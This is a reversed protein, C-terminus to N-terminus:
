NDTEIYASSFDISMATADAGSSNYLVYQPALGVSNRPLDTSVVGGTVNGTLVNRVYYYVNTDNPKCALILEWVTDNAVAFNSGLDVKNASGSNDNYVLSFNADGADFGIGFSDLLTSLAGSTLAHTTLSAATAVGFFGRANATMVAVGFITSFFFGGVGSASGRTAYQNSSTAYLAGSSVAAAGVAAVKRVTGVKTGAAFTNRGTLTTGLPTGTGVALALGHTNVTTGNQNAVNVFGVNRGHLSHQLERIRGVPDMTAPLVIKSGKTRSLLVVNSDAVASPTTVPLEWLTSDQRVSAAGNKNVSSTTHGRFTNGVFSNNDAESATESIGYKAKNSQSAYFTNAQIVNYDATPTTNTTDKLLSIDPYTNDTQQGNDRFTCGTVRNNQAGGIKMGDRQNGDILMGNVNVRTDSVSAGTKIRFGEVTAGYCRGGNVSVDYADGEIVFNSQLNSEGTCDVLRVGNAGTIDFGHRGNAASRCNLMHVKTVTDINFGDRDNDHSYVNVLTFRTGVDKLRVGYGLSGTGNNCNKVEVDIIKVDADGTGGTYIGTHDGNGTQASANGDITIGIIEVNTNASGSLLRVIGTVTNNGQDLLKLITKGPGDGLLTVNAPLALCGQSATGTGNLAYTGAPCYVVGGGATSVLDIVSRIITTDSTSGDAKADYDRVNYWAPASDILRSTTSITLYKAQVHGESLNFMYTNNNPDVGSLDERYGAKAKNTTASKALARNGKIVNYAAGTFVGSDGDDEDLSVQMYTNNTTQSSDVIYNDQVVNYGCGTLNIGNRASGEVHCNTITCFTDIVTTGRRIRIGQEGANFSFCGDLKIHHSDGQVMFNNGTNGDASCGVVQGNFTTAIFNYGYRGNSNSRCGLLKFNLVGDLVFGDRECDHAYCNIAHFRDVVEHPDFGYGRSLNSSGTTGNKGNKCEVNICWIDTDMHVRDDPTVGAFFCIINAWGTQGAKNGDITLDKVYIHQNEIGSQTRVVGALDNNGIDACQIITVGMGDGQLTMNSRLRIGGVSASGGYNIVYRGGPAYIIGGGVADCALIANEFAARNASGDSDGRVAGYDLVNFTRDPTRWGYPELLEDLAAAVASPTSYGGGGGGSSWSTWGTTTRERTYTTGDDTRHLTQHGRRQGAIATDMSVLFYDGTTPANAPDKVAFIGSKRFNDLNEGTELTPIKNWLTDVAELNDLSM